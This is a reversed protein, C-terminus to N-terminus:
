AIEEENKESGKMKNDIIDYRNNKKVINLKKENKNVLKASVVFNTKGDQGFLRTCTAVNLIKDKSNVKINYDYISVKKIFDIIRKQEKENVNSYPLTDFDMNYMYSVAFVQYLYNKGNLTLQIFQNEKAFDYYTYAMLEEFRKFSPDTKKPIGLNFMNHGDITLNNKYKEDKSNMWGYAKKTVPNTYNGTKDIIIPYDINTGQVRIWGVTKYDYEDLKQEKKLSNTRDIIEFSSKNNIDIIKQLLFFSLLIFIIIFLTILTILIIKSREQKQKKKKTKM